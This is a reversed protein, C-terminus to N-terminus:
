ENEGGNAPKREWVRRQREPLSTDVKAYYTDEGLLANAAQQLELSPTVSYRENTDVFVVGGTPRMFCLLLPIKGPHAAVLEKLQEMHAPTLHAMQLRFHVQKTYKQPASELPMIEQPFIKPKDETTNVEGIVLLAKNQVLLERYKDYNENMCLFQVSGELDELTVLAYPKNTKKSFGSQVAGVMGGIRTMSRNQLGALGVTTHLSYKELIPALPSLPHGTVYFGLLEKEAALLEHQPWEELKILQLAPKSGADELTDLM